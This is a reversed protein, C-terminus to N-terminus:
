KLHVRLFDDRSAYLFRVGSDKLDIMIQFWEWSSLGDPRANLTLKTTFGPVKIKQSVEFGMRRVLKGEGVSAWWSSALLWELHPYKGVFDALEKMGERHDRFSFAESPRLFLDLYHDAPRLFDNDSLVLVKGGHEALFGRIPGFGFTKEPDSYDRSDSAWTSLSPPCSLKYVDSKFPPLGDILPVPTVLSNLYEGLRHLREKAM